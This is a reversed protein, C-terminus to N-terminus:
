SVVRASPWPRHIPFWSPRTQWLRTLFPRASYSPHCARCLQMGLEEESFCDSCSLAVSFVAPEKAACEKCRRLKQQLCYGSCKPCQRNKHCSPCSGRGSRYDDGRTYYLGHTCTGCAYQNNSQFRGKVVLDWRACFSCRFINQSRM